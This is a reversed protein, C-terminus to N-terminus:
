LTGCAMAILLGSAVPLALGFAVGVGICRPVWRRAPEPPAQSAAPTAAAILGLTEQAGVHFEELLAIQHARDARLMARVAVLSDTM